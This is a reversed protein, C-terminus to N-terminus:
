SPRPSSTPRAQPRNGWLKLDYREAIVELLAIRKQHDMSISGVFSADLDAAPPPPLADLIAPEFALHSLEARVGSAAGATRDGHRARAGM